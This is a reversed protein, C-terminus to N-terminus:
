RRPILKRAHGGERKQSRHVLQFKVDAEPAVSVVVM